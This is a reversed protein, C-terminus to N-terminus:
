SSCSRSSRDQSSTPDAVWALGSTRKAYWNAVAVFGAAIVATVITSGPAVFVVTSRMLAPPWVSALAFCIGSPQARPATVQRSPVVPWVVDYRREVMTAGATM